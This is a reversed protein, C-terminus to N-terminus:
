HISCMELSGSSFLRNVLWLNCLVVVSSVNCIWTYYLTYLTYIVASQNCKHMQYPNWHCQMCAPQCFIYVTSSRTRRAIAATTTTTGSARARTHEQFNAKFPMSGISYYLANLSLVELEFTYFITTLIALPTYRLSLVSVNCKFQIGHKPEM